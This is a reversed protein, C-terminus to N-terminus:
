MLVLSVYCDIVCGTRIKLKLLHHTNDIVADSALSLVTEPCPLNDGLREAIGLIECEDSKRLGTDM